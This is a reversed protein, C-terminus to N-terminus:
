NSRYALHLGVIGSLLSKLGPFILVATDPITTKQVNLLGRIQKKQVPNKELKRNELLVPMVLLAHCTGINVSVLGQVIYVEKNPLM